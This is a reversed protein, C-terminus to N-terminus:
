VFLSCRPFRYGARMILVFGALCFSIFKRGRGPSEWFDQERVWCFDTTLMWSGQPTVPYSNQDEFCQATANTNWKYKRV